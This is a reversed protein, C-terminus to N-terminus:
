KVLGEKRLIEFQEDEDDTDLFTSNALIQKFSKRKQNISISQSLLMKIIDSRSLLPYDREYLSLISDLTDDITIRVFSQKNKVSM